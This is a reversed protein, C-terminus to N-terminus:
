TATAPEALIMGKERWLTFGLAAIGMETLPLGLWSFGTALFLFGLVLGALVLAVAWGPLVGANLSALGFLIWGLLYLGLTVVFGVAAAVPEQVTLGAGEAMIILDVLGAQIFTGFYTNGTVLAMGAFVVVFAIAGFLGAKNAQRLFLAPLGLLILLAAILGIVWLITAAPQPYALPDQSGIFLQWGIKQMGWLLGGLSVALGGWRILNSTSM